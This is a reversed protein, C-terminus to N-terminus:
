KKEMERIFTEVIKKDDEATLREQVVKAAIDVTLNAITDKLEEEAKAVEQKITEQTKALIKEGEDRADQRIAEAACRAEEVAEEIRKRAEEEVGAMAKEYDARLRSAEDRAADIAKFEAAIREKRDDLVKLFPRWAFRKMLFLLILFTVVQAVIENTSLLKLLEM